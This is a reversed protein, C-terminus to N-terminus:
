GGNYVQDLIGRAYNVAWYQDEVSMFNFYAEVLVAAALDGQLYAALFWGASERDQYGLPSQSLRQSAGHLLPDSSGSIRAADMAYVDGEEWLGASWARNALALMANPDNSQALAVLEEVTKTRYENNPDNISSEDFLPFVPEGKFYNVLGREELDQKWTDIDAKLQKESILQDLATSYDQFNSDLSLSRDISENALEDQRSIFEKTSDELSGNDNSISEENRVVFVQDTFQSFNEEIPNEPASEDESSSDIKHYVFVAMSTVM